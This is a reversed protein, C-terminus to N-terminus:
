VLRLILATTVKSQIVLTAASSTIQLGPNQLDAFCLYQGADSLVLDDITLQSMDSSPNIIM